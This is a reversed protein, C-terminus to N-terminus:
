EYSFSIMRKSGEISIDVRVRPEPLLNLIKEPWEIMCYSGSHFYEQIGIDLAEEEKRIRYFDFHYLLNGERTEYENVLSFTPSSMASICGLERCITKIFTTKGAGMEGYFAIIRLEGCFKLLAMAPINLEEAQQVIYTEKIGAMEKM